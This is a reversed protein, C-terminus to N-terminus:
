AGFRTAGRHAFSVVIEPQISVRVGEIILHDFGRPPSPVRTGACDIQELLPPVMRFSAASLDNCKKDFPDTFPTIEMRTAHAIIADGSLGGATHCKPMANRAPQYNTVRATLAKRANRVITEQKASDSVAFQALQNASIRPELYITANGIQKTKPPSTASIIKIPM